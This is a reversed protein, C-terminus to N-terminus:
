TEPPCVGSALKRRREAWQRAREQRKLQEAPEVKTTQHDDLLVHLAELESNVLDQQDRRQSFNVQPSSEGMGSPHFSDSNSPGPLSNEHADNELNNRGKIHEQEYSSNATHSKDSGSEHGDDSSDGYDALRCLGNSSRGVPQPAPRSPLEKIDQTESEGSKMSEWYDWWKGDKRLFSSFRPDSGHNTLIRIELLSPAPSSKLAQLTRSMLNIQEPPPIRSLKLEAERQRDEEERLKVRLYREDDRKRRLKKQAIEQREDLDFYFMEEHDSPLDSYGTPSLPPPSVICPQHFTSCPRPSLLLRADYPLILSEDQSFASTRQHLLQCSWQLGEPLNLNNS